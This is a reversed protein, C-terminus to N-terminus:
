ITNCSRFSPAIKLKDKEDRDCECSRNQRDTSNPALPQGDGMGKGDEMSNGAKMEMGFQELEHYRRASKKESCCVM